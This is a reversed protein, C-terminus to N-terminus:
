ILNTFIVCFMLIMVCDQGYEENKGDPQTHEVKKIEPEIVAM